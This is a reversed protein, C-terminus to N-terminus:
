THWRVPLYAPLFRGQASLLIIRCPLSKGGPFFESCVLNVASPVTLFCRFDDLLYPYLKIIQKYIRILTSAFKHALGKVIQLVEPILDKGVSIVTFVGYVIHRCFSRYSWNSDLPLVAQEESTHFSIFSRM